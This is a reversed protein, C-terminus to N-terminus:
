RLALTYLSREQELNLIESITYTASIVSALSHLTQMMLVDMAVMILLTILEAEIGTLEIVVTLSTLRCKQQAFSRRMLLAAPALVGGKM